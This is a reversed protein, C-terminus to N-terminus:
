LAIVLAILLTIVIALMAGFLAVNGWFNQNKMTEIHTAHSDIKTDLKDLASTIRSEREKSEENFRVERAASDLAYKELQKEFRTERDSIERRTRDERERMDQKIENFLTDMSDNNNNMKHDGRKTNERDYSDLELKLGTFKNHNYM